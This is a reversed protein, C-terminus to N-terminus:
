WFNYGLAVKLFPGNYNIEAKRSGPPLNFYYGEPLPILTIIKEGNIERKTYYLIAEKEGQSTKVKGRFNSVRAKQYLFEFRCVLRNPFFIEVGGGAQWGVGKGMLKQPFYPNVEAIDPNLRYDFKYQTWYHTVGGQTYFNAQYNLSDVLPFLIKINGALPFSTLSYALTEETDRYRVKNIVKGSQLIGIDAKLALHHNVRFQM